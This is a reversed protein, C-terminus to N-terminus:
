LISDEIGNAHNIDVNNLFIKINKLLVKYNHCHWIKIVNNVLVTILLLMPIIVKWYNEYSM